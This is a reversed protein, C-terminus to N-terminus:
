QQEIFRIIPLAIVFTNHSFVAFTFIQDASWEADALAKEKKVLLEEKEFQKRWKWVRTYCIGIEEGVQRVSWNHPPSLRVLAKEKLVEPDQNTSM